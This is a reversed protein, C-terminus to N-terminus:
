MPKISGGLGKHLTFGYMEHEATLTYTFAFAYFSSDPLYSIM